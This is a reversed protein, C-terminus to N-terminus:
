TGICNFHKKDIIGEAIHAITRMQNIKGDPYSGDLNIYVLLVSRSEGEILCLSEVNNRAILRIIGSAWIRYKM